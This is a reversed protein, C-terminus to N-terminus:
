IDRRNIMHTEIDRYDVHTNRYRMVIFLVLGLNQEVIRNRAEVVGEIVKASEEAMDQSTSM